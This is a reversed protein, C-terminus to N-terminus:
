FQIGRLEIFFNQGSGPTFATETELRAYINADAGLSFQFNLDDRMSYAVDSGSGETTAPYFDIYGLRNAANAYTVVLAANDNIATPAASYLWLRFQAVNAAQDTALRALQIIGGGGNVRAVSSFTLVHPSSTSDSVCDKAAYAATDAPRQLTTSVKFPKAYIVLAQDSPLVVPVSAAMAAQGLAPAKGDLSTLKTIETSQNAATAVASLISALSTNGTDQKASTALNGIGSLVVNESRGATVSAIEAM